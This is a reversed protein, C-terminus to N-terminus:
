ELASEIKHLLMERYEEPIGIGGEALSCEYYDLLEKIIPLGRIAGFGSGFNVFEDREFGVFGDQYLLDDLNRRVEVDTDLYIGGHNYIIDLRAYDPVFGWKKQQYAQYMYKNKTIDYNSENWEIIEYDPCYKKWSDIWEKYQKPMENGGFWCYHLKKPIKPHASIRINSPITKNLAKKEASAYEFHRLVYFDANELGQLKSLFEIIEEYKDCTIIIAIKKGCYNNLIEIPYVYYMNSQLFIPKNQKQVDSDIFCFVDNTIRTNSFLYVFYDKRKGAGYCFIADYDNENIFTEKDIIKLM